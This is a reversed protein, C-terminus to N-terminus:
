SANVNTLWYTTMNGKGKLMTEGRLELHWTGHALHWTGPAMASDSNQLRKALEDSVHIRGPECTNELRSAINVADGWIDYQLRETGIVGAVVPGCHLGIRVRMGGDEGFVNHSVDGVVSQPKFTEIWQLMELAAAAARQPSDTMAEPAGAVAMYSDGITKIKTLGHKSCIIDCASFIEDLLIVVQHPPLQDAIATFGVIDQFLVTAEEFSDGNVREGAMMREAVSNPLAGDLLARAKEKNQREHEARREADRQEGRIVNIRAALAISLLIMEAALGIQVAHQSLFSRPIMGLNALNFVAGLVILISWASLFYLAPSYKARLSIVSATLILAIAPLSLLNSMSYGFRPQLFLCAIGVITMLLGVVLFLRFVLKSHKRVQLFELTFAISSINAMNGLFTSFNDQWWPNRAFVITSYGSLFLWALVAFLLSFVLYLLYARDRLFIYIFLNYLFLSGMVGVFVWLVNVEADYRETYHSREQFSIPLWFGINTQGRVYITRVDSANVPFSVDHQWRKRVVEGNVIAKAHTGVQAHELSGDSMEFWVDALQINYNSIVFMWQHLLAVSDMEISIKVWHAFDTFGYNISKKTGPTWPARMVDHITLRTTSDTLTSYNLGLEVVPGRGNIRLAPAETAAVVNGMGLLMIFAFWVWFM